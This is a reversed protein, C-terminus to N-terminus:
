LLDNENWALHKLNRNVEHNNRESTGKGVIDDGKQFIVIIKIGNINKKKIDVNTIMRYVVCIKNVLLKYNVNL